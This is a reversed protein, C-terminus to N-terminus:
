QNRSRPADEAAPTLSSVKAMPCGQSLVDERSGPHSEIIMTFHHNDKTQLSRPSQNQPLINPLMQPEEYDVGDENRAVDLM